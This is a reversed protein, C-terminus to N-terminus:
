TRSGSAARRPRATFQRNVIGGPKVMAPDSKTTVAKKSRRVGEVGALRMPGATQDRSAHWGQGRM